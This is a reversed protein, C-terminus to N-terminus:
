RSSQSRTVTPITLSPIPALPMNLLADSASPNVGTATALNPVAAVAQPATVLTSGTATTTIAATAALQDQRAALNAGLLTAVISGVVLTTKLVTAGRNPTSPKPTAPKMTAAGKATVTKTPTTTTTTM